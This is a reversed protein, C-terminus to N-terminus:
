VIEDVPKSLKVDVIKHKNHYHKKDHNDKKVIICCTFSQCCNSQIGDCCTGEVEIDAQTEVKPTICTNGM